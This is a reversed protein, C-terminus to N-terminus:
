KIEYNRAAAHGNIIAVTAPIGLYGLTRWGLRDQGFESCHYTAQDTHPDVQCSDMLPVHHTVHWAAAHLSTQIGFQLLSIGVVKQTSPNSGLFPNSEQLYAPRSVTSHADAALAACIVAEGVWWKPDTFWHKHPAASASCCFVLALLFSIFKM